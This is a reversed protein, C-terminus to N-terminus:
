AEHVKNIARWDAADADITAMFHAGLERWDVSDLAANVLDAVHDMDVPNPGECVLKVAPRSEVLKRLEDGLESAAATAGEEGAESRAFALRTLTTVATLMPEENEFWLVLMAGAHNKFGLVKERENEQELLELAAELAEHGPGKSADRRRALEHMAYSSTGM